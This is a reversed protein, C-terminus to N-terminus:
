VRGAAAAIAWRASGYDWTGGGEWTVWWSAMVGAHVARCHLRYHPKASKKHISM